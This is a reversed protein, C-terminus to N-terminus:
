GSGGVEARVPDALEEERIWHSSAVRCKSGDCVRESDRVQREDREIKPRDIETVGDRRESM